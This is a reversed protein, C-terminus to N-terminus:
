PALYRASAWGEDGSPHRVRHWNGVTELVRVREGTSLRRIVDFETGPGTRLNLAGDNTPVVALTGAAGAPRLFNLSAWGNFGDEHRVRAWSGQRELVAVRDGHDMRVIIAFDTGPGTRLNLSGDRPTDVVRTEASAAGAALTLALAALFKRM